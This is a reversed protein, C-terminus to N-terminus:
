KTNSVVELQLTNWDDTKNLLDQMACNNETTVKQNNVSIIEDGLHYKSQSKEKTVIVLKEGAMAYYAVKRNFVSEIKNSNRKVFVKNNNFDIIWDFGKMFNIGINQAKISTSVNVKTEYNQGEFTIPMKEFFTETGNSFSSATTFYNGELVMKNPNSFHQEPSSPIIINGAYGTDLKCKYEKGEIELFVFIQNQKCISKILKYEANQKVRDVLEEKTLNCIENNTFNLFLSTNNEFFVDLGILGKIATGKSCRSKPLSSFSLLKNDSEFLGCSIQTTFFRNKRKSGDASVQSGFNAFKKTKFGAIVTSDFVVTGMAGTDFIFLQKKNELDIEITSLSSGTLPMCASKPVIKERLAFNLTTCSATLLLVLLSVTKM